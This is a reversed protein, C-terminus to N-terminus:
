ICIQFLKISGDFYNNLVSLRQYCHLFNLIRVILVM